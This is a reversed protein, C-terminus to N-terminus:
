PSLAYQRVCGEHVSNLLHRRREADALLMWRTLVHNGKNLEGGLKVLLEQLGCARMYKDNSMSELNREELLDQDVHLEFEPAGGRLSLDHPGNGQRM